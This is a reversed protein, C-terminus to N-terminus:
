FGRLHIRNASIDLPIEYSRRGLAAKSLDTASTIRLLYSEALLFRQSRTTELFTCTSYKVNLNLLNHFLSCRLTRTRRNSHLPISRITSSDSVPKNFCKVSRRRRMHISWVTQMVHVLVFVLWLDPVLPVQRLFPRGRAYNWASCTKYEYQLNDKM